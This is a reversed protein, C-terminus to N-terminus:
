KKKHPKVADLEAEKQTKLKQIYNRVNSVFFNLKPFSRLHMFLSPPRTLNISYYFPAIYREPYTGSPTM